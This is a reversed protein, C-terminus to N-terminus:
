EFDWFMTMVSVTVTDFTIAIAESTESIHSAISFCVCVCVSMTETEETCNAFDYPKAACFSVWCLQQPLKAAEARFNVCFLKQQVGTLVKDGGFFLVAM